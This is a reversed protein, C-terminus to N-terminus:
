RDSYYNIEVDLAMIESNIQYYHMRKRFGRRQEPRSSTTVITKMQHCPILQANQYFILDQLITVSIDRCSHMEINYVVPTFTTTGGSAGKEPRRSVAVTHWIKRLLTETICSNSHRTCLADCKELIDLKKEFTKSDFWRSTIKMCVDFSLNNFWFQM